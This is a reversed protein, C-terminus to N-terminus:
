IHHHSTRGLREEDGIIYSEEWSRLTSERLRLDLEDIFLDDVVDEFLDFRDDRTHDIDAVFLELETCREHLRYEISPFIVGHHDDTETHRTSLDLITRLESNDTGIRLDSTTFNRIEFLTWEIDDFDFLPIVTTDVILTIDHNHSDRICMKIIDMM